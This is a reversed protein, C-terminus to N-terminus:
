DVLQQAHAVAPPEAEAPPAPPAQGPRNTLAERILDLTEPTGIIAIDQFLCDIFTVNRLGVVGQAPKGPPIEIFMSEPTGSFGVREFTVKEAPLIVAPGLIIAQDFVRDVVWADADAEDILRIIKDPRTAM